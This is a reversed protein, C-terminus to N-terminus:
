LEPIAVCEPMSHRLRQGWGQEMKREPQKFRRHSYSSGTLTLSSLPKSLPILSAQSVDM